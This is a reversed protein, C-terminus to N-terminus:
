EIGSLHEGPGRAGRATTRGSGLALLLWHQSVHLLGHLLGHLPWGRRRHLLLIRGNRRQQLPEIAACLRDLLPHLRSRLLWCRLLPHLRDLLRRLRLYRLLLHRLQRHLLPGSQERLLPGLLGGM